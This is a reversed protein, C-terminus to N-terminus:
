AHDDDKVFIVAVSDSESDGFEVAAVEWGLSEQVDIVKEIVLDYKEPNILVTKEMMRSLM